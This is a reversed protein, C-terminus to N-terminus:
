SSSGRVGRRPERASRQAAPYSYFCCTDFCSRVDGSASAITRELHARLIDDVAGGEIARITIEQRERLTM